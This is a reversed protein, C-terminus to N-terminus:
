PADSSEPSRTSDHRQELDKLYEDPSPALVIDSPLENPLQQGAVLTENAEQPARQSADIAPRLLIWACIVMTPMVLGYGLTSVFVLIAAAWGSKGRAGADRYIWIAAILAALLHLVWVTVVIGSVSDQTRQFQLAGQDFGAM